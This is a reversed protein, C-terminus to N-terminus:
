RVGLDTPLDSLKRIWNKTELHSQAKLDDRVYAIIGLQDIEKAKDEPLEDDLTLLFVRWSPKREPITQKWRERLTRKCSLFFAQDPRELATRQDPVVLDIRKLIRRAHGSASECSGGIGRVLTEVIREFTKGGRSKRMQGARFELERALPYFLLCVEKVFDVDSLRAKLDLLLERNQDIWLQIMQPFAQKEHEVYVQHAAEELAIVCESFNSKIYHPQLKDPPIRRVAEELIQNLSPIQDISADVIKKDRESLPDDEDFM